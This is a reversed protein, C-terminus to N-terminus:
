VDFVMLLLSRVSKVKTDGFLILSQHIDVKLNAKDDEEKHIEQTNSPAVFEKQKKNKRTGKENNAKERNQSSHMMNSINSMIKVQKPDFMEKNQYTFEDWSTPDGPDSKALVFIKDDARLKTGKEPNTVVYKFTSYNKNDDDGPEPSM